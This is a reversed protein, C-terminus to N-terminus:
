KQTDTAPWRYGLVRSKPYKKEKVANDQNGGLVIIETATEGVYLGVHGRWSERSDRWFVVVCGYTPRLLTVGWDLWSRAGPNRTSKIGSKEFCWCVFSSCWSEDYDANYGAAKHYERIIPDPECVGKQSEAWVLWLPKKITKPKEEIKNPEPKGLYSFLDKLFSIM